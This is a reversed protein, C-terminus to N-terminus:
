RVPIPILPPAAAHATASLLAVLIVALIKTATIIAHHLGGPKISSPSAPRFVGHVASFLTGGQLHALTQAVLKMALVCFPAPKSPQAQSPLAIERHSEIIKGVKIM